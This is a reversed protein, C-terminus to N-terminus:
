SKDSVNKETICIKQLIHCLKWLDNRHEISYIYRESIERGWWEQLRKFTFLVTKM